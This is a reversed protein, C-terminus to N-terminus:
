LSVGIGCAAGSSGGMGRPWLRDVGHRGVGANGGSDRTSGEDGTASLSDTARDRQGEGVGAEGDRQMAARTDRLGLGGAVLYAADAATADHQAGIQGVLGLDDAHQWLGDDASPGIPTSTFLALGNSRSSHCSAM